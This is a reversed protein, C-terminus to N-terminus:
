QSIEPYFCMLNILNKVGDTSSEHAEYNVLHGTTTLYKEKKTKIFKFLLIQLLSKKIRNKLGLSYQAFYVKLFFFIFILKSFQYDTSVSHPGTFELIDPKSGM